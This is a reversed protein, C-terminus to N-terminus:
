TGLTSTDVTRKEEPLLGTSASALRPGDLNLARSDTLTYRHPNASARVATILTEERELSYSCGSDSLRSIASKPIARCKAVGSSTKILM